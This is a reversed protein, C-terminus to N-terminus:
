HTSKGNQSNASKQLSPRSIDCLRELLSYQDEKTFDTSRVYHGLVEIQKELEEPDQFLFGKDSNLMPPETSPYRKLDDGEIPELIEDHRFRQICADKLLKLQSAYTQDSIRNITETPDNKLDFIWEKNDAVSYIYKWKRNAAMYLGLQSQSFQSFVIRDHHCPKMAEVLSIGETSPRNERDGALTLYTPYLDLLSTPTDCRFDEPFTGPLRAIM